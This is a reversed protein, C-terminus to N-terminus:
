RSIHGTQILITAPLAVAIVFDRPFNYVGLQLEDNMVYFPLPDDIYYVVTKCNKVVQFNATKAQVLLFIFHM